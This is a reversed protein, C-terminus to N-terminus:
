SSSSQASLALFEVEDREAQALVARFDEEEWDNFDNGPDSYFVIEGSTSLIDQTVSEDLTEDHIPDEWEMDVMNLGVDKNQRSAAFQYVAQQFSRWHAEEIFTLSVRSNCDLHQQDFRRIFPFKNNSEKWIRDQKENFLATGDGDRQNWTPSAPSVADSRSSTNNGRTAFQSFNM